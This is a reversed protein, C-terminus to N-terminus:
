QRDPRVVVRKVVTRRRRTRVVRRELIRGDPLTERIVEVDTDVQPDGPQETDTHVGMVQGAVGGSASIDFAAGVLEPLQSDSESGEEEPLEVTETYEVMHGDPQRRRVRRTATRRVRTRIVRRRVVTGDPQRIEEVTSQSPFQPGFPVRQEELDGGRIQERELVIPRESDFSPELHVVDPHAYVPECVSLSLRQDSSQCVQVAALFMSSSTMLASSTVEDAAPLVATEGVRPRFTSERAGVINLFSIESSTSSPIDDSAAPLSASTGVYIEDRRTEGSFQTPLECVDGTVKAIDSPPYVDEYTSLPDRSVVFRGKEVEEWFELKRGYDEVALEATELPPWDGVVTPTPISLFHWDESVSDPSDKCDGTAFYEAEADAGSESIVSSETALVDVPSGPEETPLNILQFGFSGRDSDEPGEDLTMRERHCDSLFRSSFHSFDSGLGVYSVAVVDSKM